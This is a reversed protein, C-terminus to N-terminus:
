AVKLGDIASILKRIQSKWTFGEEMFAAAARGRQRAADPDAFIEELAALCEEVSPERWGEVGTYPAYPEMPTQDLLPYCNGEGILDLQGTNAALITPLGAALCEMAVLNTGPECRNPFIAAQSANLYAQMERNAPMGLDVFSEPELGNAELWPSIKLTKGADIEPAGEVYESRAITPMIAPWQNAWAFILLAEPHRRHFERFARIVVDQGKRYELKGGSFIVFRGPYLEQAQEAPRFLHEDIGQFVNVVNKVGREALIQANWTSGTVILGYEAARALGEGSFDTDEFFIIGINKRGRIAQSALGPQFDSRLAHLVPIDLDVVTGKSLIEQLHSQRQFLPTLLKEEEQGVSLRHPGLLLVPDRGEALLRLTLNLGYVGWGSVSSLRWGIALGEDKPPSGNM